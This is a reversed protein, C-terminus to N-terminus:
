EHEEEKAKALTHMKQIARDLDRQALVIGATYGAEKIRKAADIDLEVQSAGPHALCYEHGIAALLDQFTHRPMAFLEMRNRVKHVSFLTGTQYSFLGELLAGTFSIGKDVLTVMDTKPNYTIKRKAPNKRERTKPGDEIFSLKEKKKM